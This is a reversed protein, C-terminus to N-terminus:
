RDGSPSLRRRHLPLLVPGDEDDPSSRWITIAADREDLELAAM